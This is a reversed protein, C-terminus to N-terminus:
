PLLSNSASAAAKAKSPAKSADWDKVSFFGNPEAKDAYREGTEKNKVDGRRHGIRVVIQKGLFWGPEPVVNPEYGPVQFVPNDDTGTFPIDLAKLINVITYLAGEFIMANTWAKRGAYDTGQITFEVAYYPKGRNDQKGPKPPNTVERTDVDSIATLYKGVPLLEVDRSESAAEKATM